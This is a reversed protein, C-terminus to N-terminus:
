MLMVLDEEDAEALSEDDYLVECLQMVHADCPTKGLVDRKVNKVLEQYEVIDVTSSDLSGTEKLIKLCADALVKVDKQLLECKEVCMCFTSPLVCIHPTELATSEQSCGPCEKRLLKEAQKKMLFYGATYRVLNTTPKMVDRSKLRVKQDSNTLKCQALRTVFQRLFSWQDWTEMLDGDADQIMFSHVKTMRPDKSKGSSSSGTRSTSASATVKKIAGLIEERQGHMATWENGLVPFDYSSMLLGDKNYSQLVAVAVKKFTTILLSKRPSLEIEVDGQSKRDAQAKLLKIISPIEGLM